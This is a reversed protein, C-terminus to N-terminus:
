PKLSLTSAFAAVESPQALWVVCSEHVDIYDGGVIAAQILGNERRAVPVALCVPKGDPEDLVGMIRSPWSEAPAPDPDGILINRAVKPSDEPTIKEYAKAGEDEVLDRVEISGDNALFHGKVHLDRLISDASSDFRSALCAMLIANVRAQGVTPIVMKRGRVGVTQISEMNVGSKSALEMVDKSMFEKMDEVQKAIDKSVGFSSSDNMSTDELYSQMGPGVVANGPNVMKVIEAIQKSISSFKQPM